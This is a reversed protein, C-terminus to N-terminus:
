CEPASGAVSDSNHHEAVWYRGYGLGEVHRALQLSERISSDPARGTVVASQDLVSLLM